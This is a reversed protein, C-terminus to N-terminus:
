IGDTLVTELIIPDSCIFDIDASRRINNQNKTLGFISAGKIIIPLERIGKEKYSRAVIRIIECQEEFTIQTKRRALALGAFMSQKQISSGFKLPLQEIDVRLELKHFCILQLFASRLIKDNTKAEVTDFKDIIVELLDNIVSDWRTNM